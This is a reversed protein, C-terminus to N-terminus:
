VAERHKNPAAPTPDAPQPATVVEQPVADAKARMRKANEDAIARQVEGEKTCREREKQEDALRIARDRANGADRREAAADIEEHTAVRWRPKLAKVLVLQGDPGVAYFGDVVEFGHADKGTTTIM